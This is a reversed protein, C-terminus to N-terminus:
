FWYKWEPEMLIYKQVFHKYISFRVWWRGDLVKVARSEFKSHIGQTDLCFTEEFPPALSSPAKFLSAVMAPTPDLCDKFNWDLINVPCNLHVAPHSWPVTHGPSLIAFSTRQTYM